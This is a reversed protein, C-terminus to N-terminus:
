KPSVGLRALLEQYERNWVTSPIPYAGLAVILRQMPRHLPTGVVLKQDTFAVSAVEIAARLLAELKPDMLREEGAAM